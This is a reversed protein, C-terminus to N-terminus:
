SQRHCLNYYRLLAPSHNGEIELSRWACVRLRTHGLAPVERPTSIPRLGGGCAGGHATFRDEAVIDAISTMGTLIM